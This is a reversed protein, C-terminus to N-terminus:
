GATVFVATRATAFCPAVTRSQRASVSADQHNVVVPCKPQIDVHCVARGHDHIDAAARLSPRADFTVAAVCSGCLEVPLRECLQM